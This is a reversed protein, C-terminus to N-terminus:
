MDIRLCCMCLQSVKSVVVVPLTDQLRDVFSIHRMGRCSMYAQLVVGLGSDSESVAFDEVSGVLWPQSM